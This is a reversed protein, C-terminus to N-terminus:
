FYFAVQAFVGPGTGLTLDDVGSDLGGYETGAPGVPINLAGLVQWDQAADWQLVLQALASRDGLNVFLSPSLNVLPSLEVRLSGAVYHRGLTFLEGRRVRVVLDEAAVIDAPSYESERLGFGNFFYEAVGSVNYGGWTWSYSWNVVLSAVEDRDTDTLVLDGRLVAEGVNLLGGVGVVTDEFHRALLLDIERELGFHHYKLATSSVASTVDGGEDRRQVNVLQWDNGAATLYQGYLMDDGVKYETDIAAPDFPNFFDMPNYILGNGWSVAQRGFRVVARAGSLSLNLRDLRHLLVSDSGSSIEATLDWWRRDDDPVAPPLLLLDELERSLALGDGHQGLLQYDAEVQLPGPTARFKLRLSGLQDHTVPGAVARFLSDDPYTATLWRGKLHGGELGPVAAFSAGSLLALAAGAAAIRV